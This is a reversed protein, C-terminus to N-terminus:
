VCVVPGNRVAYYMEMEKRDNLSQSQNVFTKKLRGGELISCPIFYVDTDAYGPLAEARFVHVLSLTHHWNM